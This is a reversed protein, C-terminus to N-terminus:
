VFKLQWVWLFISFTSASRYFVSDERRYQIYKWLEIAFPDSTCIISHLWYSFLNIEKTFLEVYVKSHFDFRFYNRKDTKVDNTNDGFCPFFSNWYYPFVSCELTFHKKCIWTFYFDMCKRFCPFVSNRYYPFIIPSCM